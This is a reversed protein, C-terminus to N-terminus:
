EASESAAQEQAPSSILLWAFVLTATAAGVLQALIFGPAHGPAIGSFTDTFSRAITVAPNAFSTSATFWYGATIFLGVAYAAPDVAIAIAHTRTRHDTRSAESLRRQRYRARARANRRLRTREARDDDEIAAAQERARRAARRALERRRMADIATALYKEDSELAEEALQVTRLLEQLWQLKHADPDSSRRAQELQEEVQRRYSERTM